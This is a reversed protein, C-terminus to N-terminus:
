RHRGMTAGSDGSRTAPGGNPPADPEPGRKKTEYSEKRFREVEARARDFTGAGYKSDIHAIVTSNFGERYSLLDKDAFCDTHEVKVGYRSRFLDEFFQGWAGRTGWFLRPRGAQIERMADTRGREFAVPSSESMPM